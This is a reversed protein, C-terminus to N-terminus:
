LVCTNNILRGGDVPLLVGTCFSARDSALFAIAQAVEEPKGIRRGLPHWEKAKEYVYEENVGCTKFIDTRITAPNVSNVRVQKDAVELAVCKTFQDLASKSMCYALLNPVNVISAVSSVNVISGKTKILEPMCKQTLSIVSKVNVNMTFEFDEMKLNQLNGPKSSGANNVLIDIKHFKQLCENFLTQQVNEDTIDGIILLLNDDTTLNLCEKITENLKNVDRGLLVLKAGMKAFLIATSRGIGSSAGTIIAVKNELDKM